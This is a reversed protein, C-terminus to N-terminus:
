YMAASSCGGDNILALAAASRPNVTCRCDKPFSLVGDTPEYVIEIAQGDAGIPPCIDFVHLISAVTLYLSEDAFYRGPCIRRGFGFAFDYPDRINKYLAGDRIFLGPKFTEPDDYVEPDHLIAWVNPLIDTGAPIFYGNVVDDELARHPVSVALVIHWRVVEKIVANIYVLADRDDLDPLRHPGVVRDLEEQAKRRADPHQSM